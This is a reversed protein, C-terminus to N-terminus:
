QTFILISVTSSHTQEHVQMDPKERASGRWCYNDQTIGFLIYLLYLYPFHHKMMHM